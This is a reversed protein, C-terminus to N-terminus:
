ENKDEFPNDDASMYSAKVDGAKDADGTNGANNTELGTQVVYGENQEPATEAGPDQPKQYVYDDDDDVAVVPYLVSRFTLMMMGSLCMVLLSAFAWSLGKRSEDCTANHIVQDYIEYFRFCALEQLIEKLTERLDGVRERIQGARERVGTINQALRRAIEQIGIEDMMDDFKRVADTVSDLQDSYNEYELM